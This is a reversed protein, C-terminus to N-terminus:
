IFFQRMRMAFPIEFTLVRELYASSTNNRLVPAHSYTRPDYIPTM